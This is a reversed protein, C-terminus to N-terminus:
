YLCFFNRSMDRSVYYALIVSRQCKLFIANKVFSHFTSLQSLEMLQTASNLNQLYHNRVFTM